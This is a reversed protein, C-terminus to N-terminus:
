LDDAHVFVVRACSHVVRSALTTHEPQRELQCISTASTDPGMKVQCYGIYVVVIATLGDHAGQWRKRELM